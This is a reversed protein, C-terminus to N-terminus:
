AVRGREHLPASHHVALDWWQQAQTVRDPDTTMENEVCTGDADFRMVVLRASDFLWWDEDGAAPLLGIDHAQERSLYRITEGARTNWPDLWQLWRQYPTPPTEHIRVREIRRGAAVRTAVQEFWAGLMPVDEAPLPDGLLLRQVSETEEDVLYRPQLELRVASREVLHFQESWEDESLLRGM